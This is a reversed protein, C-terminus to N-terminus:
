KSQALSVHPHSLADSALVGSLAAVRAGSPAAGMQLRMLQWTHLNTHSCGRLAKSLAHLFM